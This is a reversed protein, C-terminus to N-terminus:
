MAVLKVYVHIKTNQLEFIKLYSLVGNPWEGANSVKFVINQVNRQEAIKSALKVAEDCYDVGIVNEFGECCM